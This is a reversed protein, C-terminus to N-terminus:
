KGLLASLRDIRDQCDRWFKQKGLLRLQTQQDIPLPNKGEKILDPRNALLWLHFIRYEIEWKEGMRHIATLLFFILYMNGETNFDMVGDPDERAHKFFNPVSKLKKAWEGRYEDKIIDSDFLLNQLGKRRYLTHIIEHAAGLLTQISVPDGDAFWLQIATRLQRTAADLKSVTIAPM